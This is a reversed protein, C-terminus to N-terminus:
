QMETFEIILTCYNLVLSDGQSKYDIHYVWYNTDAPASDFGDVLQQALGSASFLVM